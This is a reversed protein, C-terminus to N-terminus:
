KVCASYILDKKKKKFGVQADRHKVPPKQIM